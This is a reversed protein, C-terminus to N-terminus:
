RGGRSTRCRILSTPRDRRSPIEWEPSRWTMEVWGPADTVRARSLRQADSSGNWRHSRPPGRKKSAHGATQETHSSVSGSHRRTEPPIADRRPSRWHAPPRRDEPRGGLRFSGDRRCPQQPLGATEAKRSRHPAGPDYPCEHRARVRVRGRFMASPDTNSDRDASAAM